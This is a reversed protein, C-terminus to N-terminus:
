EVVVRAMMAKEGTHIEVIYVGMPLDDVPLSVEHPGAERRGLDENRVLRGSPDYVRLRLSASRDLSLSITASGLERSVPNPRVPVLSRSAWGPVGSGTSPVVIVRTMQEVTNHSVTTDRGGAPRLQLTYPGPRSRTIGDQRWEILYHTRSFGDAGTTDLAVLNGDVDRIEIVVGTVPNGLSDVAIFHTTWERTLVSGPEVLVRSPNFMCDRLVVNSSGRMAVDSTAANEITAGTILVGTASDFALGVDPVDEIHFFGMRLGSLDGRGSIGNGGSAAVAGGEIVGRANLLHLGNVSEVLSSNDWDIMGAVDLTATSGSDPGIMSNHLVLEGDTGVRVAGDGNIRLLTQRLTARGGVIIADGYQDLAYGTYTDGASVAADLSDYIMANVRYRITDGTDMDILLGTLLGGETVTDPVQGTIFIRQDNFPGHPQFAPPYVTLGWGAPGDAATTYRHNSDVAIDFDAFIFEGPNYAAGYGYPWAILPPDLALIVHDDGRRTSSARRVEIGCDDPVPGYCFRERPGLNMRRSLLVTEQKVTKRGQKVQRVCVVEVNKNPSRNSGTTNTFYISRRCSVTDRNARDGLRLGYYTKTIEVKMSGGGDGPDRVTTTTPTPLTRGRGDGFVTIGANDRKVTDNRERAWSMAEELSVKGDGSLDAAPDKCCATMARHFPSGSATGTTPVSPPASTVVSGKLRKYGTKRDGIKKGVIDNVAAGSSCAMIVVCVENPNAELLKCAFDHWSLTESGNGNGRRLGMGSNSGHGVYYVYLKNCPPQGAMAELADCVEQKTAGVQGGLGVTTINPGTVQPGTATGNLCEKIRAVDNILATSDWGAQNQGVIILAWDTTNTTPVPNYTDLNPAPQPVNGRVRNPGFTLPPHEVEDIVPWSQAERVLLSGNTANVFAFTASHCWFQSPENDIWLLYVPGPITITWSSDWPRVNMNPQLLSDPGTLNYLYLALRNANTRGQIVDREVIAIAEARSLFGPTVVVIKSLTDNAGNGDEFNVLRTSIRFTGPGTPHWRRSASVLAGGTPNPPIPQSPVTDSFVLNGGGDRIEFGVALPPSLGPGLNVLLATVSVTDRATIQSAPNPISQILVEYQQASAATVCGILVLLTRLLLRSARM